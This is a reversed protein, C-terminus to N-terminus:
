QVDSATLHALVNTADSLSPGPDMGFNITTWTNGALLEARRMVGDADVSLKVTATEPTPATDTPGLPNDSPPSSFVQVTTGDIEETGLWLAGAQQLLLPNDPRDSGLLTFTLLVADLTSTTADLDRAQWDDSTPGAAPLAPFGASPPNQAWLAVATHDWLMTQPEFGDGTVSAYGTGAAFDFWGTVSLDQQQVSSTMTFPRTGIEANRSRTIALLQSEETTVPHWTAVAPSCATLVLAAVLLLAAYARRRTTAIM